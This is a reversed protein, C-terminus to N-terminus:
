GYINREKWVLKKQKRKVFANGVIIWLTFLQPIMYLLNKIVPQKSAFSVLLNMLIVLALYILAPNTGAMIWILPLSFTVTFTFLLTTIRSAGFFYFINKAFGNVAERYSSYMRCRIDKNGLFTAVPLGHSKYLKMISIDEAISGCCKQHPLIQLYSKRTFLMCQGNAASLARLPSLRILPLPLLSLLIRNMWPVTCYSGPTTLIQQPFVSLLELHYYDLTYTINKILEQSIRVDADLFLFRDCKALRALQHCAYNKGMWGEEPSTGDLLKIWPYTQSFTKVVTATKDTSQDNYVIVEAPAKKLQILDNLLLSITQEENRAPILLSVSHNRGSNERLLSPNTWWNIAAICTRLGMIVLLLIVIANM